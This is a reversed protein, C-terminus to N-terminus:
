KNYKHGAINKLAPSAYTGVNNIKPEISSFSVYQQSLLLNSQNNNNANNNSNTVPSPGSTTRQAATLLPILDSWCKECKKNFDIQIKMGSCVTIM